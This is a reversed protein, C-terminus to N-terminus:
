GALDKGGAQVARTATREGGYRKGGSRLERYVVAAAPLLLDRFREMTHAAGLSTGAGHGVEVHAGFPSRSRPSRWRPSSWRSSARLLEIDIIFKEYCSVWAARLGAPPM